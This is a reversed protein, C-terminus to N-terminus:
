LSHHTSINQEKSIAFFWAGTGQQQWARVHNGSSPAFPLFHESSRLLIELGEFSRSVELLLSSVLESFM